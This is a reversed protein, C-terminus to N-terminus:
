QGIAALVGRGTLECWKPKIYFDLGSTAGPLTVSRIVLLILIVLLIPMLIKSWREIGAKVGGFLILMTLFMFAAHLGITSVPNAAFNGFINAIQDPTAQTFAGTATKYIYGLTWGAVVSYFSSIGWGTIVGLMGLYKWASGPALAKYVGVPNKQTHRGLTLEAIMVSLCILVVSALYVFVFAAGGNQGAITPFRWINGLGVASGAGALIFGIKSSWLGRESSNSNMM